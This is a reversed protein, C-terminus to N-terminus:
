VANASPVVVTVTVALSPAPLRADLLKATVTRSVVAGSSTTGASMMASAVLAAPATTVNAAVAVSATVALGATAYESLGPVVNASPVVVTVTVALSAAPFVVVLVNVTLTTSVFAGDPVSTISPPAATVVVPLTVTEHANVSATPGVAICNETSPPAQVTHSGY